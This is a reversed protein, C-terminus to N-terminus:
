RSPSFLENVLQLSVTQVSKSVNGRIFTKRRILEFEFGKSRLEIVALCLSLLADIMPQQKIAPISPANVWLM